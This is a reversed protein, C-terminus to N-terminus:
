ALAPEPWYLYRAAPLVTVAATVFVPLLVDPRLIPPPPSTCPLRVVTYAGKAALYARLERHQRHLELLLQNNAANLDRYRYVTVALILLCLSVAARRLLWM